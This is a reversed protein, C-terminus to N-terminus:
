EQNEKEHSEAIKKDMYELSQLYDHITQQLSEDTYQQLEIGFGTYDLEKKKLIKKKHLALIHKYSCVAYGIEAGLFNNEESIETILIQCDSLCEGDENEEFFPTFTKNKCFKISKSDTLKLDPHERLIFSSVYVKKIQPKLPNDDHVFSSIKKRLIELSEEPIVKNRELNKTHIEEESFAYLIIASVDTNVFIKYPPKKPSSIIQAGKYFYDKSTKEEFLQKREQENMFSIKGDEFVAEDAYHNDMAYIYKKFYSFFSENLVGIFICPIVRSNKVLEWREGIFRSAMLPTNFIIPDYFESEDKIISKYKGKPIKVLEM